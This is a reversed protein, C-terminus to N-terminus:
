AEEPKECREFEIVWVWMVAALAEGSNLEYANLLRRMPDTMDKLHGM